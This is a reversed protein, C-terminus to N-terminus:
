LRHRAAAWHRPASVSGILPNNGALMIGWGIYFNMAALGDTKENPIGNGNDDLQADQNMGSLFSISRKAYLHADRVNGGGAVRSWFFWSYCVYGDNLLHSRQNHGASALLIRGKGEPTKLYPFFSASMPADYIFVLKGPLREQLADLWANLSRAPLIENENLRFAGPMGEGMFYIVLDQTNVAAWENLAEQVGALTSQGNVMDTAFNVTSLFRIDERKYGQFIFAHYALAANRQISAWLPTGAEGAAVIMAKRSRPNKVSISTLRPASTNGLGDIAYIALRYTGPTNFETYTGEFRNNGVPLLDLTPLETIPNGADGQRFDPPRIVAWVRAIGDTDTVDAAYILHSTQNDITEEPSISGITPASGSIQTGSGIHLNLSLVGDELDNAIGNGNDDLQSQQYPLMTEGALDFADKITSGNFIHAWFISSFSISGQTIFNAEEDATASTIVIRQKGAPPKLTAVFSGSHCADYIVTVPINRGEQLGNLWVSLDEAKLIETDSMWFTGNGGHDVLYIVLSEADAAWTTIAEQLNLNTAEGTVGPSGSGSLDIEADASLYRISERIYGQSQLARYAFSASMRTANWLFDNSSLRNNGKGAVIIAKANTPNDVKRYTQIRNNNRDVVYVSGDSHVALSSPWDLLGAGSGGGGWKAIFTGGSSFKQIRNNLTDAVYVNGSGDVAIGHPYIFQGDDVGIEGWQSLYQGSSSFKQVRSNLTDAVYVNGSGDVAIGRPSFFQGTGSGASGWQTLYQGSSSFKQIRNNGDDAVYVNGNGDAAIAWPNEFHGNGSGKGGWQTLYQGSSSFKQIRNNWIETIFIDGNGSVAIGYPGNFQGEGAGWAGWQELYQGAPTFRQIRNNGDDTVYVTNDSHIAIGWPYNFYGSSSGGSEWKTLYLGYTSFKQIRPSYKGSEGPEVVYVNGKGDTAIGTPKYFQGEGKGMMGWQKIFIGDATLKQIRHNDRDTVYANGEKDIAIGCPAAFQGEGNGPGGWQRIFLGDASFKQIRSNGTDVVYVNGEEDIAIGRPASFQGEGNGPGGWQRIFLGDASFKQIRSNGTDVVYVNGEGDRAIGAPKNFRGANTGKAGWQTVFRGSATFKQIRHNGLDAVFINGKGDVAISETASFYWPQQLAPWMREFVYNGASLVATPLLCLFISIQVLLFVHRKSTLYLATGPGALFIKRM